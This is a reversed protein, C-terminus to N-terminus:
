LYKELMKEIIDQPVAGVIQDLMEGDKFLILNPIGRINFKNALSDNEDINVKVVTIKGDFANAISELTPALAKCPGCWPAWFDVLTLTNKDLVESQFENENIHKIKEEM